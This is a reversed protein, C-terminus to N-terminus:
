QRTHLRGRLLGALGLAILVTTIAEAGHMWGSGSSLSLALLVFFGILLLLAKPNFQM